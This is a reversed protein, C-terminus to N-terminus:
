SGKPFSPTFVTYQVELTFNGYRTACASNNQDKTVSEDKGKLVVGFNDTPFVLWNRAAATIDVSIGGPGDPMDPLPAILADTPLPTVAYGESTILKSWDAGALWLETACYIRNPFHDKTGDVSSVYSQQINFHLIAKDIVRGKGAPENIADLNFLVAGRYFNQVNRPSDTQYSREFGAVVEDSKRYIRANGGLGGKWNSDEPTQVVNSIGLAVAPLSKVYHVDATDKDKCGAQTAALLLLALIRTTRAYAIQPVHRSPQTSM